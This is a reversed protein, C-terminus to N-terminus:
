EDYTLNHRTLFELFEEQFSKVRHHEEQCALYDRVSELNSYSVSFAAYGTQWAFNQQDHFTAHMWSSSNAKVIRLAEAVPTEKGLSALLHVHDPRGGAALVVGKHTRLIGGIYDFLRTSIEKTLFPQRKKTSFVLHYNLSAYSQPM